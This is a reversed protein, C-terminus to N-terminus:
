SRKLTANYIGIAKSLTTLHLGALTPDLKLLEARLAQRPRLGREPVPEGKFIEALLPLIRPVKGTAEKGKHQCKGQLWYEFDSKEVDVSYDCGNADTMMDINHDHWERPDVIEPEDQWCLENKVILFPQKRSRIEGSACAQRLTSQAKGRSVRLESAIEIEADRFRLWEPPRPPAKM